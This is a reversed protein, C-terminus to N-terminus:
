RTCWSTSPDRRRRDIAQQVAPDGRQGDPLSLQRTRHLAPWGALNYSTINGQLKCHNVTVAIASLSSTPNFLSCNVVLVGIAKASVGTQHLLDDVARFMIAEAELWVEAM